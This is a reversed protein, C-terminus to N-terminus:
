FPMFFLHQINIHQLKNKGLKYGISVFETCGDKQLLLRSCFYTLQFFAQTYFKQEKKKILILHGQELGSTLWQDFPQFLLL